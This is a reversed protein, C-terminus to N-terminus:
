AQGVTSADVASALAASASRILDAGKEAIAVTPAHTNGAVIQPMVSADVVRLGGLGHVRLDPGVVAQDDVGMRCTGTPHYLTEFTERVWEALQRRSRVATGPTLEDGRYPDFAAQHGIERAREVGAVLAALDEPESFYDPDIEPHVDPDASRLRLRGRSQVQVLTPGISFAHVTPPKLGHDDFNVPGFHVQLDPRDLGDSSRFFAGGEAVNSTLPGRRRLFYDAFALPSEANMLTVPKKSYFRVGVVPHDQLHEGVNPQDLVVDVGAARLDAAPGVGSLLLLHPSGIAGASLVVEGGPVTEARRLRGDQVYEVGSCVAGDFLLRRAHAHTEVTLNPRRRAPKIFAAAASHRRGNKQNVQYLGVGEQWAGNFDANAPLGAEKGAEVFALSLPNPDRLDAVNLPGGTGHYPSQGRENHESRRFYRLMEDYGWGDNGAAEWDDYDQRHGRVYIMANIASSGGMVKGRPWFLRRGLAHRQPATHYHWDAETQFLRSFAAPIHVEPRSDPGGAELLLVQCDPDASLRNALVCGASGAGVIVYDYM